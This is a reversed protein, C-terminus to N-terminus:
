FLFCYKDLPDLCVLLSKLSFSLLFRHEKLFTLGEKMMAASILFHGHDEENSILDLQFLSLTTKSGFIM